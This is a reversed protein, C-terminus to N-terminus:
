QELEAIDYAYEDAQRKLILLGQEGIPQHTLPSDRLSRIRECEAHLHPLLIELQVARAEAYAQNM